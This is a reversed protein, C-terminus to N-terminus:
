VHMLQSVLKSKIPKVSNALRLGASRMFRAPIRDDAYLKAIANTTLFLPLTARKHIKEYQALVFTNGTDQSKILQNALTEASLLGFNFGHATVPHMGVAADGILAFRHAIFRKAFSAVLPYAFRDSILSIDGLRNHIRERIDFIFAENDLNVLKEVEPTPLTIVVSSCSDALPLLALTQDYNFIEYAIGRHPSSHSVRCVLMSRAFDTMTAGIGMQRRTNSFRSDAGVLLRTKIKTGSTTLVTLHNQSQEIKLISNNTILNVDDLDKVVQYLGRRIAHNSVMVGLNSKENVPPSFHLQYLSKGNLVTAAYLSSYESPKFYDIVGMQGLLTFSHQTLAIERGDDAPSALTDLAQREVIGIMYGQGSLRKALSLGTPGAGVILV